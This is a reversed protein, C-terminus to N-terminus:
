VDSYGGKELDQKIKKRMRYLRTKVNFESVKLTEAIERIKKGGYYYLKFITIDEDKMQEVIKGIMGIKERQEYLIDIKM